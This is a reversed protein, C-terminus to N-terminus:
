FWILVVFLGYGERLGEKGLQMEMLRSTKVVFVVFYFISVIEKDEDEM